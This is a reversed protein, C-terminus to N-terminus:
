EGVKLNLNCMHEHDSNPSHPPPQAYVTALRPENVLMPTLKTGQKNESDPIHPPPQANVM